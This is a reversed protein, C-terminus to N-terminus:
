DNLLRALALRKNLSIKNLNKVIIQKTVQFSHDPADNLRRIKYVGEPDDFVYEIIGIYYRNPNCANSWNFLVVDGKNFSKM